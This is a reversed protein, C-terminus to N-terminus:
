RCHDGAHPVVVHHLFVEGQHAVTRRGCSLRLGNKNKSGSYLPGSVPIRVGFIQAIKDTTLCFVKGPGREIVESMLPYLLGCPLASRLNQSEM